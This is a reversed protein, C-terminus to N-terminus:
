EARLPTAPPVRVARWAPVLCAAVAVLLLLASMTLYTVPDLATVGYLMAALGTTTMAAGFLGILVGVGALTMGQGVVLALINGRSAGLAARVGIERTREVVTGALIGYLGTAALVLAAVAFCQFIVLAFRREAASARVLDVMLAQRVIPQGPDVSWVAQRVAPALATVEGRARVVLSMASEAIPWQDMPIYVAGADDAALSEQRVDAVVGVITYPGHAGIRIQRGLPDQGSLRGRVLSESVVASLAGGDRDGEQLLRGRRLPIGMVEFYGPTVAYRFTGREEGPDQDAPPEFHVGYLDLDGSLPLQSTFAAGALGPVERVADLAAAFFVQDAEQYVRDVQVALAHFLAGLVPDPQAQAGTVEYLSRTFHERLERAIDTASREPPRLSKFESM